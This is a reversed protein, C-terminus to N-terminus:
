SVHLHDDLRGYVACVSLIVARAVVGIRGLDKQLAKAQGAMYLTMLFMMFLLCIVIM